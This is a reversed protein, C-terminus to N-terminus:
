HWRGISLFFDQFQLHFTHAQKIMRIKKCVLSGSDFHCFQHCIQEWDKVNSPIRHLSVRYSINQALLTLFSVRLVKDHPFRLGPRLLKLVLLPFIGNYLLSFGLFRNSQQILYQLGCFVRITSSVQWRLLTLFLTFFM